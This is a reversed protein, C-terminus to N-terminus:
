IIDVLFTDNSPALRNQGSMRKDYFLDNVCLVFIRDLCFLFFVM